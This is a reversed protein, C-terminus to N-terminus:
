IWRTGKPILKLQNVATTATRSQSTATPERDAVARVIAPELSKLLDIKQQSTGGEAPRSVKDLDLRTVAQSTVVPQPKFERAPAALGTAAGLDFAAGGATSESIEPEPPAAHAEISASVTMPVFVQGNLIIRISMKVPGADFINGPNIIEARWRDASQQAAWSMSMNDRELVVAVSSPSAASGATSLGFSIETTKKSPFSYNVM